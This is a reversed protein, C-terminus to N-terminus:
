EPRSRLSAFIAGAAAVALATAALAPATGGLLAAARAVMPGITAGSFLWFGGLLAAGLPGRRPALAAAALLAFQGLLMVTPHSWSFTHLPDRGPAALWAGAAMLGASAAALRVIGSM